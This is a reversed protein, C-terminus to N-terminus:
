SAADEIGRHYQQSSDRAVQQWQRQSICKIKNVKKEAETAEARFANFRALNKNFNAPTGQVLHELTEEKLDQILISHFLKSLNQLDQPPNSPDIEQLLYQFLTAM